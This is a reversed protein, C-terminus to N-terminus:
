ESRASVNAVMGALFRMASLIIMAILFDVLYYLALDLDVNILELLM